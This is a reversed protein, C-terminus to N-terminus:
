NYIYIYICQKISISVNSGSRDLPVSECCEVFDHIISICFWLFVIWGAHLLVKCLQSPMMPLLFFSFLWSFRAIDYVQIIKGCLWITSLEVEVTYCGSWLVAIVHQFCYHKLLKCWDYCMLSSALLSWYLDGMFAFNLWLDNNNWVSTNWGM